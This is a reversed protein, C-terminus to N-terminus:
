AAEPYVALHTPVDEVVPFSAVSSLWVINVSVGRNDKFLRKIALEIMPKMKILYKGQIHLGPVDNSRVYVGNDGDPKVELEIFFANQDTPM